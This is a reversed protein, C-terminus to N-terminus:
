KDICWTPSRLRVQEDIYEQNPLNGTRVRRAVNSYFPIYEDFMWPNKVKTVRFGYRTLLLFAFIEYQVPFNEHMYEIMDRLYEDTWQPELKSVYLLEHVYRHADTYYQNDLKTLNKIQDDSFMILVALQMLSEDNVERM